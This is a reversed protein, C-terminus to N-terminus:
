RKELYADAVGSEAVNHRSAANVPLAVGPELGAADGHSAALLGPAVIDLTFVGVNNEEDSEVVMGYDDAFLVIYYRGPAISSSFTIPTPPLSFTGSGTGISVGGIYGILQYNADALYIGM